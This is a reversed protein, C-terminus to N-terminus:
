RGALWGAMFGLQAAMLGLQALHIGGSNKCLLPLSSPNIFTSNRHAKIWQAM